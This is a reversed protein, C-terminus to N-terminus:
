TEAKKGTLAVWGAALFNVKEKKVFRFDAGFIKICCTLQWTQVTPRRQDLLFGKKAEQTGFM